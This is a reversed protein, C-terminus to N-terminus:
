LVWQLTSAPCHGGLSPTCSPPHAISLRVSRVGTGTGAVPRAVCAPSTWARHSQVSGITQVGRMRVARSRPTFPALYKVSCPKNEATAAWQEARGDEKLYPWRSSLRTRSFRVCPESPPSALCSAKGVGIRWCSAKLRYPVAARSQSSGGAPPFPAPSLGEYGYLISQSLFVLITLSPGNEKAARLPMRRKGHGPLLPALGTKLTILPKPVLHPFAEILRLVAGGEKGTCRSSLM